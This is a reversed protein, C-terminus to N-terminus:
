EADIENGQIVDPDDIELPVKKQRLKMLKRHEKSTTCCCCYVIVGILCFLLLASVVIIVIWWTQSLGTGAAWDNAAKSGAVASGSEDSTVTTTPPPPETTVKIAGNTLKLSYLDFNGLQPDPSVLAKIANMQSQALGANPPVNLVFFEVIASGQLVSGFTVTSHSGAPPGLDTVNAFLDLFQNQHLALNENWASQSSDLFVIQGTVDPNVQSVDPTPSGTPAKTPGATTPSTPELTTPTTPATPWRTTPLVTTPRETTPKTTTPAQTTPGVTTPTVTPPSTPSTPTPAKTPVRSPPITPTPLTPNKTPTPNNTPAGTSPTNTPAGTAPTNTPAATTPVKTTPALTTPKSTTPTAPTPNITTPNFTPSRTTPKLTPSSTSPARTPRSTPPTPFIQNCMAGVTEFGVPCAQCMYGMSPPARDVCLPLGGIACPNSACADFNECQKTIPNNRYGPGCTTCTFSTSPPRQDICSYGAPCVVGHACADYEQCVFGNGEYGQPCLSTTKFVCQVAGSCSTSCNIGNGVMGDPCSCNYGPNSPINACMSSDFCHNQGFACAVRQQCHKGDGVMGEPCPNCVYGSVGDAPAPLDVCLDDTYCKGGGTCANIDTCTHGDGTTGKPCPDCDYGWNPPPRDRCTVNTYCPLLSCGNWDVCVGSSNKVYGNACLQDCYYDTSPPPYNRCKGALGAGCPTSANACADFVVCMGTSDVVYGNGCVCNPVGSVMPVCQYNNFCPNRSTYCQENNYQQCYASTPDTCECTYAWSPPAQDMCTTESPCTALVCADYDTCHVGDGTYGDGCAACNVANNAVYCLQPHFCYNNKCYDPAACTYGLESPDDICQVQHCPVDFCANYNQELTNQGNILLRVILGYAAPSSPPMKGVYVLQSALSTPVQGSFKAKQQLVTDVYMSVTDDLSIIQVRLVIKLPVMVKSKLLVATTGTSSFMKFVLMGDSGTFLQFDNARNVVQLGMDDDIQFTVDIEFNPGLSPWLVSFAQDPMYKEYTNQLCVGQQCVFSLCEYNAYCVAGEPKEVVYMSFLVFFDAANEMAVATASVSNLHGLYTIQQPWPVTVLNTNGGEVFIQSSDIQTAGTVQGQGDLFLAYLVLENVSQIPALLDVFGDGNIDMMAEANTRAFAAGFPLKCNFSVGCTEIFQNAQSINVAALPLGKYDLFDIVISGRFDVVGRGLFDPIGDQNIDGAKRPYQGFVEIAPNTFASRLVYSSSTDQVRNMCYQASTICFQNKDNYSFGNCGSTASCLTACARLSIQQKVSTALEDCYGSSIFVYESGVDGVPAPSVLERYSLINGDRTLFFLFVKGEGTQSVQSVYLDHVGDQNVDGADAISGGLTGYSSSVIDLAMPTVLKINAESMLLVLWLRGLKQPNAEGPCSPCSVVFDDYGNGDMDGIATVAQGWGQDVFVASPAVGTIDNQSYSVTTITGGSNIMVIHVMGINSAGGPQGILLEDIGDRNLDSIRCIQTFSGAQNTISARNIRKASLIQGPQFAFTVFLLLLATFM